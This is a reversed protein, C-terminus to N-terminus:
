MVTSRVMSVATAESLWSRSSRVTIGPENYVMEDEPAGNGLKLM